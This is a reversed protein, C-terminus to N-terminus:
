PMPDNVRRSTGEMRFKAVGQEDQVLVKWDLKGTDSFRQQTTGKFDSPEITIWSLTKTSEDWRGSSETTLGASNFWWSRYSKKTADFTYLTTIEVRNTGNESVIFGSQELFRGGLIWHATDEGRTFENGTVNVDWNGVYNQLIQLEPVDKAPGTEDASIVTQVFSAWLFILVPLFRRMSLLEAPHNYSWSFNNSDRRACRPAFKQTAKDQTHNLVM